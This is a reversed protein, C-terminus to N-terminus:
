GGPQWLAIPAGAPDAITTFEGAPGRTKERLVAAGLGTARETAADVDDVQVFPVWAPAGNAAPEIAAWPQEGGAVMGNEAIEWGLLSRYFERAADPSETGLSFWM